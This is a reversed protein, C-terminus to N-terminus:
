NSKKTLLEVATALQEARQLRVASQHGLEAFKQILAEVDRWTAIIRLWSRQDPGEGYDRFDLHIESQSVDDGGSPDFQSCEQEFHRTPHYPNRCLRMTMGGLQPPPM